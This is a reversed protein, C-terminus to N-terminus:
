EGWNDTVKRSYTDITTINKIPNGNVDSTLLEGCSPCYYYHWTSIYEVRLTVLDNFSYGCEKCTFHLTSPTPTTQSVPEANNTNIDTQKNALLTGTLFGGIGFVIAVFLCAVILDSLFVKKKHNHKMM